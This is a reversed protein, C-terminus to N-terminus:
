SEEQETRRLHDRLFKERLLGGPDDPILNLWQKDEDSPQHKTDQGQKDQNQKDQDQKDQNQKDQNQKDQNQKDQNQKDQNQKDQNQKDQNQKDQNQKDQNQKDQNQKDQNQKDQNQKDQNQKDQNQKDQNQKLLKEIVTRNHLTDQDHPRLALSKNYADIADKYQKLYALANGQNYYGDASNLAAFHESAKKFHQARFAATARWAQNQFQQEAESFKTEHMLQSAQQNPTRWLDQWTWAFATTTHFGVSLLIAIIRARRIM